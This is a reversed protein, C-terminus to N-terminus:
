RKEPQTLLPETWPAKLQRSSLEAYSGARASKSLLQWILRAHGPYGTKFTSGALYYFDKYIGSSEFYALISPDTEATKLFSDLTTFQYDVDKETVLDAADSIKYVVAYLLHLASVTYNGTRHYFWGLKSHAEAPFREPFRYLKLVFDLGKVYYNSEFQERLRSSAPQTFNKDDLLITKLSDEFSRYTRQDEYIGALKYLAEYKMEPIYFSNRLEYAKKYKGAALDLEGEQRYVDGIGMEAEPLVSFSAIADQYKKLASGYEKLAFFANGQEYLILAPTKALQAFGNFSATLMLVILASMRTRRM